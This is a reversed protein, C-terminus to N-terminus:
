IVRFTAPLEIRALHISKRGRINAVSPDQVKRRSREPADPNAGRSEDPCPRPPAAAGSSACIHFRPLSGGIGRLIGLHRLRPASIQKLSCRYFWKILRLGATVIKGTM